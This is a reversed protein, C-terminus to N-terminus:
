GEIKLRKIQQKSLKNKPMMGLVVRRLVGEPDKEFAKSFPVEKLGGIYGSHRWYKKSTEKRGSLRVKKINKVVVFDGVDKYPVFEPKQKGRLLLAIDVAVRGLIRDKLDITHTKREM